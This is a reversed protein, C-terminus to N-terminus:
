KKHGRNKVPVAFKCNILWDNQVSFKCTM